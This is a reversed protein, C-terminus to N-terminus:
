EIQAPLLVTWTQRLVEDEGALTRVLMTVYGRDTRTGSRRIDTIESEAHLTMGPTVPKSFRIGDVRVGVLPTDGFPRSEVMLKMTVSLTYWGSATFEGFFSEAAADDDLHMPQPDFRAAYAMAGERTIEFAATRHTEGTTVDEITRATM